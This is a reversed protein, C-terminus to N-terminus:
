WGDSEGGPLRSFPRKGPKTRLGSFGGDEGNDRSGTPVTAMNGAPNSSASQGSTAGANQQAGALAASLVLLAAIFSILALARVPSSNQLVHYEKTIRNTAM